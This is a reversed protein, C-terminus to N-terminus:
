NQTPEGRNPPYITIRERLYLGNVLQVSDEIDFKVWDAFNTAPFVQERPTGNRDSGEMGAGAVIQAGPVLEPLTVRRHLCRAFRVQTNLYSGDIPTPVPQPHVLEEEGWPTDSLYQRIKILSDHPTPDVSRFRPLYRTASETTQGNFTNITFSSRIFYLDLLVAPWVYHRTSRWTKFPTNKERETRPKGFFFTMTGASAKRCSVYRYDGFDQVRPLTGAWTFQSYPTYQELLLGDPRTATKPLLALQRNIIEDPVTLAVMWELPNPTEVLQFTSQAM